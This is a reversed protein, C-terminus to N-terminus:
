EVFGFFLNKGAILTFPDSNDYPQLFTETVGDSEYLIVPSVLTDTNQDPNALRDNLSSVLAEVPVYDKQKLATIRDKKDDSYTFSISKGSVTYSYPFAAGPNNMTYYIEVQCALATYSYEGDDTVGSYESFCFLEIVNNTKRRAVAKIRSGENFTFYAASVISGEDDKAPVYIDIRTRGPNKENDAAPTVTFFAGDSFAIDYKKGDPEIPKPKEEEYYKDKIEIIKKDHNIVASGGTFDNLFENLVGLDSYLVKNKVYFSIFLTDKGSFWNGDIGDGTLKYILAQLEYVTEDYHISVYSGFDKTECHGLFNLVAAFPITTEGDSSVDFNISQTVNNGNIYMKYGNKSFKGPNENLAPIHRTDENYYADKAVLTKTEKDTRVAGGAFESLFANVTAGDAYLINDALYLATTGTNKNEFWNGNYNNGTMIREKIKLTFVDNEYRLIVTNEGVIESSGHELFSIIRSFPLISYEDDYVGYYTFKTMDIHNVFLKYGNKDEPAPAVYGSEDPKETNVATTETVTTEPSTTELITTEPVIRETVTTIPVTTDPVITEPETETEIYTETVPATTEEGTTEATTTEAEETTETKGNTEAGTEEPTDSSSTEPTNNIRGGKYELYKLGAFMGGFIVACVAFAGALRLMPHYSSSKATKEPLTNEYRIFDEVHGADIDSVAKYLSEKKDINKM